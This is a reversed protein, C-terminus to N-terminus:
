EENGSYTVSLPNPNLSPLPRMSPFHPRHEKRSDLNCEDFRRFVRNLTDLEYMVKVVEAVCRSDLKEYLNHRRTEVTRQSVGLRTAITKNPIGELLMELVIAERDSVSNWRACLSDFRNHQQAIQRARCSSEAFTQTFRAMSARREIYTFVGLQLWDVVAQAPISDGLCIVIALKAEEMVNRVMRDCREITESNPPISSEDQFELVITLGPKFNHVLALDEGLLHIVSDMEFYPSWATNTRQYTQDDPGIWLCRPLSVDFNGM